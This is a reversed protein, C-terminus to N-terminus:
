QELWERIFEAMREGADELDMEDGTQRANDWEEVAERAQQSFM